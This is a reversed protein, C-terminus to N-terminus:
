FHNYSSIYEVLSYKKRANFKFQLFDRAHISVSICSVYVDNRIRNLNTHYMRRYCVGSIITKGQIYIKNTSFFVTDLIFYLKIVVSVLYFIPHITNPFFKHSNGAISSVLFLLLRINKKCYYM